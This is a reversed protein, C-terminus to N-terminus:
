KLFNSQGKLFCFSIFYHIHTDPQMCFCYNCPLPDTYKLNTNKKNINLNQKLTSSQIQKHQIYKTSTMVRVVIQM